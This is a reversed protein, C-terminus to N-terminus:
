SVSSLTFRFLDECEQLLPLNQSTQQISSISYEEEEGICMWYGESQLRLPMM